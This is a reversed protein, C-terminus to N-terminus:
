KIVYFCNLIFFIYYFFNLFVKQKTLVTPDKRENQARTPTRAGFRALSAPVILLHWTFGAFDEVSLRLFYKKGTLIRQETKEFNYRPAEKVAIRVHLDLCSIFFM